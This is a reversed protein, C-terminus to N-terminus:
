AGPAGSGVVARVGEPRARRPNLLLGEGLLLFFLGLLAAHWEKLTGKGNLGSRGSLWVCEEFGPIAGAARCTQLLLWFVVNWNEVLNLSDRNPASVDWTWSQEVFSGDAYLTREPYFKRQCTKGPVDPMPCDPM